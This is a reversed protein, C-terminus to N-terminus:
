TRCMVSRVNGRGRREESQEYPGAGLFQSRELKMAENLLIEFARSMGDLGEDVLVEVVQEIAKSDVRHTM